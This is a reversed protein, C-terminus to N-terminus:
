EIMWPGRMNTLQRDGSGKTYEDGRPFTCALIRRADLRSSNMKRRATYARHCIARALQTKGSAQPGYILVPRGSEAYLHGVLLQPYLHYLTPLFRRSYGKAQRSDPHCPVDFEEPWYDEM